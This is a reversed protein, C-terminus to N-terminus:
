HILILQSVQVILSINWNWVLSIANGSKMDYYLTAYKTEDHKMSMKGVQGAWTSLCYLSPMWSPLVMGHKIKSIEM